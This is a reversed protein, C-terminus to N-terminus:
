LKSIEAQISFVGQSKKRTAVIKATGPELEPHPQSPKKRAEDILAKIEKETMKKKGSM